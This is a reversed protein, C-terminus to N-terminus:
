SLQIFYNPFRERLIQRDKNWSSIKTNLHILFNPQLDQSADLLDVLRVKPDYDYGGCVFSSIKQNEVFEYIEKLRLKFEQDNM